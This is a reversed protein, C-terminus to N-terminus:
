FKLDCNKARKWYSCSALGGGNKLGQLHCGECFDLYQCRGCVEGGPAALAMLGKIKETELIEDISQTKINGLSTKLGVCPFVEGHADVFVLDKVLQCRFNEGERYARIELGTSRYKESLKKVKEYFYRYDEFTLSRLQRADGVPITVGFELVPVKLALVTEAILDMRKLNLCSVTAAIKVQHNNELLAGLGQTMQRFAEPSSRIINHIVEDGDLSVQFTLNKFAALEASAERTILTANTAIVIHQFKKSALAVAEKLRPYLFPEGGTFQVLYVGAEYIEALFEKLWRFDAFLERPKRKDSIYCHLCRLNCKRTLEIICAAPSIKQPDGQARFKLSVPSSSFDLYGKVRAAVLFNQIKEELLAEPEEPFHTKLKQVLGPLPLSGDCFNLVLQGHPNISESQWRNNECLFILPNERDFRIQVQKKLYPFM